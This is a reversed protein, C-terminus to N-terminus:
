CADVEDHSSFYVYIYWQGATELVAGEHGGAEMGCSYVACARLVRKKYKLQLSLFKSMHMESGM